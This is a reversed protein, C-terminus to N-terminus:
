VSYMALINEIPTDAQLHHSGAIIYGGHVGLVASVEAVTECVKEPSANPLLNQVDIGGHFAIRGGFEDALRKAAMNKTAPQIPNLIALGMEIFRPILPYVSGCCHMMAPKGFESALAIMRQHWPQIYREYLRPSMLLGTQSALDDYFYVIDILDGASKLVRYLNELHVEGIREMIYVPLAPDSALDVLFRDLGYLSWATEFVSGARYRISYSDGGDLREISARLDKFDWWDPAPWDYKRIDDLGAAQGLPYSAIEDLAGFSTQIRRRRAGWIDRNIGDAEWARWMGGTSSRERSASLDVAAGSLNPHSCFSDYSVVRCDVGLHKLLENRDSTGFHAALGDWVEPVAAFDRPTRDPKEFRIAKNVREKPTITSITKGRVSAIEHSALGASGLHGHKNRELFM